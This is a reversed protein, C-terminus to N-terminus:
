GGVYVRYGNLVVPYGDLYLYGNIVGVGKNLTAISPLSLDFGLKM